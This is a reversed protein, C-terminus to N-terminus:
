SKRGLISINGLEAGITIQSLLRELHKRQLLSTKIKRSVPSLWLVHRLSIISQPSRLSEVTLGANQFLMMSTKKSFLQTHEVDFIPSKEGMSISSFSDVNHHLSLLFGGKKLAYVCDKLCKDPQPIHDLTQFLFILSFSNKPFLRTTFVSQTIRSKVKSSAKKIADTSPEVGYVNTYGRKMLRELMFGNGTGIELIKDSKQMNQLVPNLVAEYTTTLNKIEQQYTFVSNKYLSTLTKIDLIPHSRVMTDRNCKVIRYHLKDPLRRASFVDKDLQEDKFNREYLVFYDNKNGCLPCVTPIFKMLQM